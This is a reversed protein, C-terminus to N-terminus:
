DSKGHFHDLYACRPDVLCTTTSDYERRRMGVPLPALLSCLFASTLVGKEPGNRVFHVNASIPSNAQM